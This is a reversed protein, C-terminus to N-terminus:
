NCRQPRGLSASTEGLGHWNKNGAGEKQGKHRAQGPTGKKPGRAKERFFKSKYGSNGARSGLSVGVEEATSAVSRTEPAQDGTDRTRTNRVREGPKSSPINRVPNGRDELAGDEDVDHSLTKGAGRSGKKTGSKKIIKSGTETHGGSEFV